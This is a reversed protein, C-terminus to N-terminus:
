KKPEEAMQDIALGIPISQDADAGGNDKTPDIGIKTLDATTDKEGAHPGLSRVYHVVGWRDDKSLTAFAPMANLGTSITHFIQSPKRGQKWDAAGTFNRPKPNLGASTPGDGKGEAGHCTVCNSQFVAKGHAVLEPTVIWAKSFKSVERKGGPAPAEAKPAAAAAHGGEHGEGEESSAPPVGWNEAKVWNTGEKKMVDPSVGFFFIAVLVLMAGLVISALRKEVKLHMFDRAVITAKVFAIGFASILTIWRIGIMPGCVSVVLLVTLIAWTKVYHSSGHSEHHSGGHEHKSEM